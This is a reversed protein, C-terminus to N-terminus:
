KSDETIDRFLNSVAMEIQAQVLRYHYPSRGYPDMIEDELQDPAIYKAFMRIKSEAEPWERIIYDRHHREMVLILDARNVDDESIMCSFHKGEPIEKDRLYKVMEPDAKSGPYAGTGASSVNIGATHNKNIENLLLTKALYSRSINGTCVFLLNM